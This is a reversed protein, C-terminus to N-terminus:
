LPNLPRAPRQEQQEHGGGARVDLNHKKLNANSEIEDWEFEMLIIYPPLAFFDIPHQMISNDNKLTSFEPTKCCGRSLHVKKQGLELQEARRVVAAVINM